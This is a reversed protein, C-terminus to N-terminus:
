AYMSMVIPKAICTHDNHSVPDRNSMLFSERQPPSAAGGEVGAEGGVGGGAEPEGSPMAAAGGGSPQSRLPPMGAANSPAESLQGSSARTSSVGSAKRSLLLVVTLGVPYANIHAQLQQRHLM